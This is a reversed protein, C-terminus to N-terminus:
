GEVPVGCWSICCLGEPRTEAVVYGANPFGHEVAFALTVNTLLTPLLAAFLVYHGVLVLTRDKDRGDGLLGEVFPVFRQQMDYYSEGGPMRSDLQHHIYWDERVQRYLAWAAADSAGDYTGVGHERLADVIELPAHLAEALIQASQQARPIPSCYIREVGLGSLERATARVQEIGKETLPDPLTSNSFRHQVNAVSEGHRVFILKL